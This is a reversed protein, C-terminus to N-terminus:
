PGRVVCEAGLAVHEGEVVLPDALDRGSRGVVDDLDHDVVALVPAPPDEVEVRRHGGVVGERRVHEHVLEAVMERPEGVLVVGRVDRGSGHSGFAV